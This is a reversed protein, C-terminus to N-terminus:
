EPRIDLRVPRGEQRAQDLEAHFDGLSVSAGQDVHIVYPEADSALEYAGLREVSHPEFALATHGSGFVGPDLIPEIAERDEASAAMCTFSVKVGQVVVDVTHGCIGVVQLPAPSQSPDAAM